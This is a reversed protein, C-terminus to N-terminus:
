SIIQLNLTDACGGFVASVQIPAWPKPHYSTKIKPISCREYLTDREVKEKGYFNFLM